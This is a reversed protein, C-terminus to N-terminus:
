QLTKLWAHIDAIEQPNLAERWPPIAGRGDLVTDWFQEHELLIPNMALRPGVLGRAGPGHCALCNAAFLAEGRQAEGMPYLTSGPRGRAGYATGQAVERTPEAGADPHYHTVLYDVLVQHESASVQARWYAMKNVIATWQERALRQQTVLDTSHCVACRVHLLGVAQREHGATDGRDEAALLLSTISVPTLAAGALMVAAFTLM